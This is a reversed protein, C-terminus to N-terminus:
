DQNNQAIEELTEVRAKLARCLKDRREKDIFPSQKLLEGYEEGLGRLVAFDLWALSGALKVQEGHSSRFPKSALKSAPRIMAALQDHWM